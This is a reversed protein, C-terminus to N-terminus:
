DIVESSHKNRENESPFKMYDGYLQKLVYNYNQPGKLTLDEFKYEKAEDYIEKPFMEKFKYAGMFNVIYDSESYKYKKLMRNLALIRKSSDLFKEFPIIKGIFILVKEHIPRKKNIINVSMSFRSYQYLMRLYLLKLMHVKRRIFNNPMGDLPFIDVFVGMEQEELFMKFKAKVKNSMLKIYFSQKLDYIEFNENKNELVLKIFKEYDERPMGIDIDDDWPIFGKHRIAGLFTGGLMFYELKNKNCIKLFERLIELEALQLKRINKM